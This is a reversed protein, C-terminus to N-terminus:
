KNFNFYEEVCYFSSSLFVEKLAPKFFQIDNAVCKRLTPHYNYIKIGSYHAGKQHKTLNTIPIHFNNGSRTNYNHIESNKTFLQKNDVM